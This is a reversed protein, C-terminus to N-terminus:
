YKIGYIRVPFCFYGFSGDSSSAGWRMITGGTTSTYQTDSNRTLLRMMVFTNSAVGESVSLETINIDYGKPYIKAYWPDNDGNTLKYQVELEDYDSSSLTIVTGSSMGGTLPSKEWLLTRKLERQQLKTPANM